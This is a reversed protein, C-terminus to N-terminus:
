TMSTCLSISMREQSIRASAMNTLTPKVLCHGRDQLLAPMKKWQLRPAPLRERDQLAMGAGSGVLMMATLDARIQRGPLCKKM